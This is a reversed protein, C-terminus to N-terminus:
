AAAEGFSALYPKWGSPLRPAALKIFLVPQPPRPLRRLTLGSEELTRDGKKHNCPACATVVNEWVSDGGRSRPVVHDLSLESTSFKKGCYQCRNRDRAYINRRNLKVETQPLRDYALLRIIRPVAISFRVTRVWDHQEPEFTRQFESIERWSDFDYSVYRGEEIHIVEAIDRFLLSFARRASTIRLAMYHKNLVLVHSNLSPAAAIM